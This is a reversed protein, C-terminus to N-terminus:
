QILKEIRFRFRVKTEDSGALSNEAATASVAVKSTGLRCLRAQRTKPFGIQIRIRGAAMLEFSSMLRSLRHRGEDLATPCLRCYDSADDVAFM